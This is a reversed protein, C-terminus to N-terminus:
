LMGQSSRKAEELWDVVFQELDERTANDALAIFRYFVAERRRGELLASQFMAWLLRSTSGHFVGNPDRYFYIALRNDKGGLRVFSVPIQGRTRTQITGRQEHDITWGSGTFCWRPDHFSDPNKSVIVTADFKRGGSEFVRAVISPYKLIDYTRADMRYTAWPYEPSPIYTFAGIRNPVKAVLERESITPIRRERETAIQVLVGAIVLIASLLVMRKAILREM